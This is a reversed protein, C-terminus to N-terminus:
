IDDRSSIHGYTVLNSQIPFKQVSIIRFSMVTPRGDTGRDDELFVRDLDEGVATFILTLYGNKILVDPQCVRRDRIDTVSEDTFPQQRSIVDSGRLIDIYSISVTKRSPSIGSPFHLLVSLNTFDVHEGTSPVGSISPVVLKLELRSVRRIKM